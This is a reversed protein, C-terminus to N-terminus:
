FILHRKKMKSINCLNNDNQIIKKRCTTNKKQETNHKPYKGM